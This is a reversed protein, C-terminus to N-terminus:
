NEKKEIEDIFISGFIILPIAGILLITGMQDFVTDDSIAAHILVCVFGILLSSLGGFIGFSAFVSCVLPNLLRNRLRRPFGKATTGPGAFIINEIENERKM